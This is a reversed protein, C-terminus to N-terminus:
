GIPTHELRAVADKVTQEIAKNASDGNEFERVRLVFDTKRPGKFITVYLRGSVEDYFTREAIVGSGTRKIAADVKAKLLRADAM